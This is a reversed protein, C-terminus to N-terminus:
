RELEKATLRVRVGPVSLAPVTREVEGAIGLPERSTALVTLRLCSDLLAGTLHAAAHLLHECNDLILLVKKERLFDVLTDTLSRDAQEQVELTAALAQPVLGGESLGALEMLWVGEPYAGVLERAVELALRTKGTGGAGTLTLLRTMALERKVEIMEQERGVFSTRSAPLNHRATAATEEPSGVQPRDPSFTGAAINEHLRQTTEGPETGLKRSLTERLGEYQALAEGPQGSLAYLRMLGAHAEEFTPEEAVAQQLTERALGYYGREEYLGALEVFLAFYTQRLNERWVEAWEEYRDEPLLDGTYLEIAAQYTAPDRSRRATEVAEEFVDM